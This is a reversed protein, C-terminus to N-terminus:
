SVSATLLLAWVASANIDLQVNGATSGVSITTGTIGAVDVGDVADDLAGTADVAAYIAAAAGGTAVSNDVKLTGAQYTFGVALIDEINVDDVSVATTNDVYILFQVLTGSPVTDGSTLATGDTLFAAKVLALLAADVTFTNSNTLDGGVGAIDGTATNDAGHVAGPTGLAFGIGLITLLAIPGRLTGLNKAFGM